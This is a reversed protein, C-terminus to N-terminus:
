HSAVFSPRWRYLRGRGWRGIRDHQGVFTHHVVHFGHVTDIQTGVRTPLSSFPQVNGRWHDVLTKELWRRGGVFPVDPSPIGKVGNSHEMGTQRCKREFFGRPSRSLFGEVCKAFPELAVHRGDRGIEENTQETSPCRQDFVEKFRCRHLVKLRTCKQESALQRPALLRNRHPNPSSHREHDVRVFLVNESM